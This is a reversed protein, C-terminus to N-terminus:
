VIVVTVGDWAPILATHTHNAKFVKQNLEDILKAHSYKTRPEAVLGAWLTNDIVIITGKHALKLALDYYKVYQKKDADIYIFDFTVQATHLKTLSQIADGELLRIQHAIDNDEWFRKAKQSYDKNIECTIVRCDTGGAMALRYATFGQFTGVELINKANSVKVLMELVSVETLPTQYSGNPLKLTDRYHRVSKASDEDTILNEIYNEIGKTIIINKNRKKLFLRVKETFYTKIIGM